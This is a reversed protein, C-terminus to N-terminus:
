PMLYGKLTQAISTSMQLEAQISSKLGEDTASDALDAATPPTFIAFLGQYQSGLAALAAEAQGGAPGNMAADISQLLMPADLDFHYNSVLESLDKFTFIVSFGPLDKARITEQAGKLLVRDLLDLNGQFHEVHVQSVGKLLERDTSSLAIPLQMAEFADLWPHQSVMALQRSQMDRLDLLRAAYTREAAARARLSALLLACRKNDLDPDSEIVERYLSLDVTEHAGQQQRLLDALREELVRQDPAASGKAQKDRASKFSLSEISLAQLSNAPAQAGDGAPERPGLAMDALPDTVDESMNLNPFQM